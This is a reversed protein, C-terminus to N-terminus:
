RGVAADDLVVLGLEQADTIHQAVTHVLREAEELALELDLAVLDHFLQVVGRKLFDKDVLAYVLVLLKFLRRRHVSDALMDILSQGWVIWLHYALDGLLVDELEHLDLHGANELKVLLLGVFCDQAHLAVDVFDILIELVHRLHGDVPILHDLLLIGGSIRSM